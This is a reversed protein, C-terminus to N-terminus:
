DTYYCNYRDGIRLQGNARPCTGDPRVPLTYRFHYMPLRPGYGHGYYAGPYYVGSHVPVQLFEISSKTTGDARTERNVACGTTTLLSVLAFVLVFLRNMVYRRPQIPEAHARSSNPFRTSEGFQYLAVEPVTRYMICGFHYKTLVLM